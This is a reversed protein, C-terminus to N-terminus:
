LSEVHGRRAARAPPGKTGTPLVSPHADPNLTTAGKNKHKRNENETKWNKKMEFLKEYVYEVNSCIICMSAYIIYNRKRNLM